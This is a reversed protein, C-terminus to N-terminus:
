KGRSNNLMEIYFCPNEDIDQASCFYNVGPGDDVIVGGYLQERSLGTVHKCILEVKSERNQDYLLQSPCKIRRESM